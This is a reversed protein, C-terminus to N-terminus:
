LLWANLNYFPVERNRIDLGQDDVWWGYRGDDGGMCVNFKGSPKSPKESRLMPIKGIGGSVKTSDDPM